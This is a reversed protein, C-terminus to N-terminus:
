PKKGSFLCQVNWTATAIAASVPTQIVIRAFPSHIAWPLMFTHVTANVGTAVEVLPATPALAGGGGGIAGYSGAMVAGTLDAPALEIWALLNGPVGATLAETAIVHVTKYELLEVPIDISPHELLDDIAEVEAGTVWVQPLVISPIQIEAIGM